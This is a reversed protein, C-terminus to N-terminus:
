SVNRPIRTRSPAFGNCWPAELNMHQKRGLMEARRFPDSGNTRVAQVPCTMEAHEVFANGPCASDTAIRRLPLTIAWLYMCATYRAVNNTFSISSSAIIVINQRSLPGGVGVLSLVNVIQVPDNYRQEPQVLSIKLHLCRRGTRQRSPMHLGTQNIYCVYQSLSGNRPLRAEEDLHVFRRQQRVACIVWYRLLLHGAEIRGSLPGCEAPHLWRWRM